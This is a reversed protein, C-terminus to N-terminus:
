KAGEARGEEDVGDGAVRGQGNDVFEKTLMNFERPDHGFKAKTEAHSYDVRYM